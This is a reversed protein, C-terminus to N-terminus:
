VDDPQAEKIFNDGAPQTVVRRVASGISDAFLFETVDGPAVDKYKYRTNLNSRFVLVLECKSPDYGVEAVQSSEAESLTVFRM